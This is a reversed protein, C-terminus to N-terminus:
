PERGGLSENAPRRGDLSCPRGGGTERGRSGSETSRTGRNRAALAEPVPESVVESSPEAKYLASKVGKSPRVIVDKIRM